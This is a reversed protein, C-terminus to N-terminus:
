DSLSQSLKAFDFNETCEIIFSSWESNTAKIREGIMRLTETNGLLLATKLEDKYEQPLHGLSTIGIAKNGVDLKVIYELGISSEIIELINEQLVPSPLFGDFGAEKVQRRTDDMVSASLAIIPVNKGKQVCIDKIEQMAVFGNMKPMQLDMFVVDPEFLTFQKIADYGDHACDTIFGLPKLLSTLVDLNLITDDAILVKCPTKIGIVNGYKGEKALVKSTGLNEAKFTFRFLSGKGLESRVITLDGEMLNAFRHSIPMGLGTGLGCQKGSATQEFAKFVMELEESAMGLGTDEVDITIVIDKESHLDNGLNECSLYIAVSGNKTFKIGNGIVNLLVQRIKGQDAYITEPIPTLYNLTLEIGKDEAQMLFMSHVDVLLDSISMNGCNLTIHGAEIKSMELVDNILNLLHKGSRLILDVMKKDEALLSKNKLLLQSYGLIANMPTRIEHSMTSIFTSKAKNASEAIEKAHQVNDLASKLDNQLKYLHDQQKDGISILRISQQLLKKYGLHLEEFHQKIDNDAFGPSQMVKEAADLIKYEVQFIENRNNTKM